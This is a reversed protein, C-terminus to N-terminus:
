FHFSLRQFLIVVLIFSYSIDDEIFNRIKLEFSHRHTREYGTKPIKSIPHTQNHPKNGKVLLLLFSLTEYNISKRYENIQCSMYFSIKSLDFIYIDRSM